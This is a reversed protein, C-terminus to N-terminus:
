LEILFCWVKQLMQQRYQHPTAKNKEKFV